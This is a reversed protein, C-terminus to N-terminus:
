AAAARQAPHVPISSDLLVGILVSQQRPTLAGHQPTGDGLREGGRLGAAQLLEDRATEGVGRCWLLLDEVRM